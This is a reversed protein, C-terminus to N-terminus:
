FDAGVRLRVDRGPQTTTFRLLSTYDRYRQNLLNHGDLGVRWTAQRTPLTVSASAGLLAVGDPPPAVEAAPDTRSQRAILDTFVRLETDDMWRAAAPRVVLAAQGRDPPTGVLFTGTAANTGRVIAARLDLGVPAEPGVEVFGDAGQFRAEIARTEYRPWTGEITVELAPQGSGTVGPAFYIYDSTHNAFGSLEAAVHEQRVAATLSGGWTTEVGLDPAGVAFVPFSPAAGILYLEDADPMRSASSLDVKLEVIDPVARWLGGVSASVADYRAPCRFRAGVDTCDSPALTGRRLHRAHDDDSLFADRGMRDYRAAVELSAAKGHLRETAFLGGSLGRYNPLLPYGAYVNEQFVGQGGVTGDLHADGWDWERHAWVADLSHTRLTFDYQPGTVGERVADYERRHNRQFAYIVEAVGAEGTPTTWHLTGQDHRVAQFPRDITRSVTWREAGIPADRQLAAEFDAPSDASVGYFVGAELDYHHWTARVAKLGRRWEAAAGATWQQSATNGLVHDPAQLSAGSTGGGEVRFSWADLAEPALDLRAAGGVRRGNTAGHALARGGVGPDTRMPPPRVLIVGGIADPGYRAGAAGKLVAVEGASFPDIEPAHDPGWKQSAHRVGDNLLLLRRESQGRIVPKANDTTGGATTVGAIQSVTHALDEGASRELDEADLTTRARTSDRDPDHATVTIEGASLGAPVADSPPAFHFRVLTDVQVPEGARVAPEFRLRLAADLAVAHFPAPGATVMADTVVGERDVTVRLTIDGHAGEPADSPYSPAVQEILRPPTM